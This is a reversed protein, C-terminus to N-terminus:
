AAAVMSIVWNVIIFSLACIILGIIAYMITKKAKEVKGADGTSTMYNYGGVIIYAVAVTGCAFIIISLITQIVKPLENANGDCGAAAQVEAPVGSSCADAFTPNSFLLSTFGLVCIVIMILNFIKRKM